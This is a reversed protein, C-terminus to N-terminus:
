TFFKWVDEPVSTCPCDASCSKPPTACTNYLDGTGDVIANGHGAQHVCWRRPHGPLMRRLRHLRQGGCSSPSSTEHVAKDVCYNEGMLEIIDDVLNLDRKDANAWGAGPVQGFTTTSTKGCGNSREVM